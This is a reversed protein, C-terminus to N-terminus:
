SRFNMALTGGIIRSVRDWSSFWHPGRVCMEICYWFTSRTMKGCLLWITAILRSGPGRSGIRRFSRSLRLM